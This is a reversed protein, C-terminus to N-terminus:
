TRTKLRELADLANKHRERLKDTTRTVEMINKMDHEALKEEKAMRLRTKVLAIAAMQHLLTEALM